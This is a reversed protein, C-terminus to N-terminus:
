AGARLRWLGEGGGATVVLTVPRRTRLAIGGPWSTGNGDPCPVFTVRAQPHEYGRLSGYLLGAEDRSGVPVTVTVRNNGIVTAPTRTILLRALEPGLATGAPQARTFGAENQLLGFPGARNLTRDSNTGGLRVSGPIAEECGAVAAGHAVAGAPRVRADAREGTVQTDADCGTLLAVTAALVAARLSGELRM